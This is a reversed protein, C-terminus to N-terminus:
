EVAAQGPAGNSQRRRRRALSRLALRSPLYILLYGLVPAEILLISKGQERAVLRHGKARVEALCSAADPGIRQGCSEEIYDELTILRGHIRLTDKFQPYLRWTMAVMWVATLIVFYFSPRAGRSMPEEKQAFSAGGRQPAQANTGPKERSAASV